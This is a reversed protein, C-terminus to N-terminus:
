EEAEEEGMFDLGYDGPRDGDDALGKCGDCDCDEEGEEEGEELRQMTGSAVRLIGKEGEVCFTGIGAVKRAAGSGVPHAIRIEIEGSFQHTDGWSIGRPLEEEDKGGDEVVLGTAGARMGRRDMEDLLERMMGIGGGTVTPPSSTIEVKEEIAAGALVALSKAISLQVRYDRRRSSAVIDAAGDHDHIEEAVEYEGIADALREMLNESM